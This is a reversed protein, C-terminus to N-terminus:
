RPRPACPARASPRPPRLAARARRGPARGPRGTRRPARPPGPRPAGSARRWADSAGRGQRPRRRRAEARDRPRNAPAGRGAGPGAPLPDRSRTTCRAGPAPPGPRTGAWRGPRAGRARRAQGARGVRPPGGAPRASADTASRRSPGDGPRARLRPRAASAAGRRLPLSKFGRPSLDRRRSKWDREKPRESVEGSRRDYRVVQRTSGDAGGRLPPLATSHPPRSFRKPAKRESSPEFGEGEALEDRHSGRGWSLPGADAGPGGQGARLAALPRGAGAQAGEWANPGAPQSGWHPPGQGRALADAVERLLAYTREYHPTVTISLQTGTWSGTEEEGEEDAEEILFDDFIALNLLRREQESLEEYRVSRRDILLLAEDLAALVEDVQAEAAQQWKRVQGGETDIRDQEERMVEISVGGQYYLELLRKQQRKLEGLRREHRRAEDRAVKSKAEMSAKVAERVLEREHATLWDRRHVQELHEEIEALRVYRAGCPGSVGVRSLCSYYEYVGGRGRHRGYGFRHGCACTLQGSLYHRHKRGRSGKAQQAALNAQVRQFSESDILAQHRGPVSLGNRTVVGTYYDCTLMRHVSSRGLPRAARTPSPRTTLGAGELIETIASISHDGTLALDFAMRVLPARVPDVAVAAIRRGEVEETVNLYGIRAPGITGGEAHKRDLGLKVKKGDNRSRFANVGSMIAFQLMGEASEDVREQTSELKAGNATIERLLWFADFEDRASRSLDYVIVYDPQLEPLEALMRQLAPRNTTTASKGPEVYEGIVRAGLREAHRACAQRQAPISYGERHTGKNVQGPTSVRLYLVATLRRGMRGGGDVAPQSSM